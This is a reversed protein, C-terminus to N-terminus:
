LSDMFHSFKMDANLIHDVLWDSALAKLDQRLGDSLEEEILIEYLNNVVYSLEKHILQHKELGPFGFEKMMSEENNFHKEIYVMFFKFTKLIENKNTIFSIQILLNNLMSFLASHESDISKIGTKLSDTWIRKGLFTCLQKDDIIIHNQEWSEMLELIQLALLKSSGYAKYEFKFNNFTTIFDQHQQVHSSTKNFDYISMFKEELLLNDQIYATLADIKVSIFSSIDQKTLSTVDVVPKNFCKQHSIIRIVNSYLQDTSYTQM